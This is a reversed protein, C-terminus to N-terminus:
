FSLLHPVSFACHCCIGDTVVGSDALAHCAAWPSTLVPLKTSSCTHGVGLDRGCLSLYSVPVAGPLLIPDCQQPSPKLRYIVCRDYLLDM